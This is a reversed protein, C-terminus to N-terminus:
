QVAYFKLVAFFYHVKSTTTKIEMTICNLSKVKLNIIIGDDPENQFLVVFRLLRKKKRKAQNSAAHNVNYIIQREQAVILALVFHCDAKM